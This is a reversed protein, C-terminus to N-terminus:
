EFVVRMLEDVFLEHLDPMPHNIGNALLATTDVGARNMQEWRRHTDAVPINLSRAVERAAEVYRALVGENQTVSCNAACKRLFEGKVGDHVYQCMTNPTLLIAESGSSLVKEFIGRMNAAYQALGKERDSNGSDNLGFNVVVVDPHFALVDREVRALGGAASDGSVGANLTNIVGAPFLRNLRRQFRAPYCEDPMHETTFGPTLQAALLGFAGHTVSDGLFAILTPQYDFANKQRASLKEIFKMM